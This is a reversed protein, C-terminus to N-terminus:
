GEVDVEWAPPPAPETGPLLPADPAARPAATVPRRDLRDAQVLRENIRPDAVELLRRNQRDVQEEFWKLQEGLRRIEASKAECGRCGFLSM